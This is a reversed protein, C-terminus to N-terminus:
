GGDHARGPSRDPRGPLRVASHILQKSLRGTASTEAAVPSSVGFVALSGCLLTRKDQGKVPQELCAHHMARAPDEGGALRRYFATFVNRAERDDLELFSAVVTPVGAALFSRIFGASSSGVQSAMGLDVTRCGSLSVLRLRPFGQRLFEAATLELPRAADDHFVLRLSDPGAIAHGAFHFMDALALQRRLPAAARFSLAQGGRWQAVVSAAEEAAGPLLPLTPREGRTAAVALLRPISESPGRGLHHLQTYATASPSFVLVHSEYLYQGAKPDRLLGFPLEQLVRDPVIVLNSVNTISTAVPAILIEHLVEASSKLAAVDQRNAARLLAALRSRLAERGIAVTAMTSGQSGSSWVLVRDPLVHYSLIATDSERVAQLDGLTAVVLPDALAPKSKKGPATTRAWEWLAWHRDQEAFRFAATADHRVSAQFEVMRDFSDQLVTLRDQRLPGSDTAFLTIELLRAEELLDEEARRVFQQKLLGQARLGYAQPLKQLNGSARYFAIAQTLSEVVAAPETELRSRAEELVRDADSRGRNQSSLPRLAQVARALDVRALSTLGLAESIAARRMLANHLSSAGGEREAVAVWENAFRLGARLLGQRHANNVADELIAQLRLLHFISGRRELASRTLTWAAEYHGLKSMGAALLGQTAALNQNEGLRCFSAAAARYHANSEQVKDLASTALGRVWHIRGALAPYRGADVEKALAALATEAEAFHQRYYLALARYFCAWLAFPNHSPRLEREAKGFWEYAREPKWEKGYLLRLGEGFDQHAQALQLQQSPRASSIMAVADALLRDGTADALDSTLIEAEELARVATEEKGARRAKGWLPLLDSEIWERTLQHNVRAAALLAEPRRGAVAASLRETVEKKLPEGDASALSALWSRAEAAWPGRSERILFRKWEETAASSLGLQSLALALNFRPGAADPREELAQESSEISTLLSSTTGGREALILDVAGLDALFPQRDSAVALGQRLWADSREVTRANGQWLLQLIAAHLLEPAAADERAIRSFDRAGAKILANFAKSRPYPQPSCHWRRLLTVGPLEGRCDAKAVAVPEATCPVYGLETTLRAQYPRYNGLAALAAAGSASTKEARCAMIFLFGACLQYIWANPLRRLAALIRIAFVCSASLGSDGIM